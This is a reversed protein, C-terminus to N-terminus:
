ALEQRGLLTLARKRWRVYRQDGLLSKAGGLVAERLAAAAYTRRDGLCLRAFHADVLGVRIAVRPLGFPRAPLHCLGVRSNAVSEYGAARAAALVRRDGRGGPLSLHVVPRGVLDELRARAGGLEQDLEGDSLETLFRHSHGHAGVSWGAALLERLMSADVFGPEGVWGSTVYLTATRGHAALIPLAQEAVSREGDDFTLVVQAKPVAGCILEDLSCVCLPALSDLQRDLQEPSLTYLPDGRTPHPRGIGHYMLIAVGTM